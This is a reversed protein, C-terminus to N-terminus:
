NRRSPTARQASDTAEIPEKAEKEQDKRPRQGSIGHANDKEIRKEEEKQGEALKKEEERTHQIKSQPKEQPNAGHNM